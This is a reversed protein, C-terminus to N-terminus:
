NEPECYVIGAYGVFSDGPYIDCSTYYDLLEGKAIGEKRAFEIAAAIGGSSCAARNEKAYKLVNDSDMDLAAKVIRGDNVRKVWDHAKSGTGEPTFGYSPGYHTLDSSGIVTIKRNLSKATEYLSRGLKVAERSPEARMWLVKAKPYLYKIFPLNIEVTNDQHIDPKISIEKELHELLETDAKIIGHPTDYGQERAALIGGGIPLHGGIIVITESVNSLMRIANFALKGSFYWGAHPVICASAICRKSYVNKWECYNEEAEIKTKPYWGNPLSRKRINM